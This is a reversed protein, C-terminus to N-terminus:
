RTTLLASANLDRRSAPEGSAGPLLFLAVQQGDVLAAVGRGPELEALSCVRVWRRVTM